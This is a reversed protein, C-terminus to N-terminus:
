CAALPCTATDRCKWPPTDITPPLPTKTPDFRTSNRRWGRGPQSTQDLSPHSPVSTSIPRQQRTNHHSEFECGYARSRWPTPTETVTRQLHHRVPEEEERAATIKECSSWYSTAWASPPSMPRKSSTECWGTTLGTRPITIRFSSHDSSLSTPLTPCLRLRIPATRRRTRARAKRLIQQLIWINAPGSATVVAYCGPESAATVQECRTREANQSATATRGSAGQQPQANCAARAPEPKM